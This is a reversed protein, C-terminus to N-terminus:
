IDLHLADKVQYMMSVDYICQYMVCRKSNPCCIKLNTQEILKNGPDEKKHYWLDQESQNIRLIKYSFIFDFSLGLCSYNSLPVREWIM